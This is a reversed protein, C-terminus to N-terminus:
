HGAQWPRAAKPRSPAKKPMDERKVLRPEMGREVRGKVKSDMRFTIPPLFVRKAEKNCEPCSAQERNGSMGAYWITFEGCEECKFTYNPM